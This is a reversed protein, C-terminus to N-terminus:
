FAGKDVHPREGRCASANEKNFVSVVMGNLERDKHLKGELPSLCTTCLKFMCLVKGKNENTYKIKCM